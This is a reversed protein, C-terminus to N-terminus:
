ARVVGMARRWTAARADWDYVVEDKAILDHLCRRDRRFLAIFFGLGFLLFSLPFVITRIAAHKFDIPAHSGARVVKVGFVAKGITRGVAATPITYYLFTWVAFALAIIPRGDDLSLSTNLIVEFALAILGSGVAFLLSVMFTDILFGFFRSVMGADTDQLEIAADHPRVPPPRRIIRRCLGHVILDVTVVQSRLVDLARTLIGTTSRAIISGLETRQMRALVRNLDVRDLVRDIDVRDIVANLDVRDIVANLDVRDIVANLDVRDIVANLDVRDIVANLDVRDIVANLDVRDIVADLDVKGIVSDIDVHAIAADLDVRDIAADLDVRSVVADIDVREIVANLDVREIVGNVDVREIVGNIDVRSVVDDVDVQDVVPTVIPRVVAGMMRGALGTPRYIHDETM